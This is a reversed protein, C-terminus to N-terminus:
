GPSGGNKGQMDENGQTRLYMYNISSSQRHHHYHRMYWVGLNQFGHCRVPGAPLLRWKFERPGVSIHRWNRGVSSRLNGMEFEVVEDMRNHVAGAVNGIVESMEELKEEWSRCVEACVVALSRGVQRYVIAQVKLM